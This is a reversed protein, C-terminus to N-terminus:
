PAENRQEARILAALDYERIRKGVERWGGLWGVRRLFSHEICEGSEFSVAM